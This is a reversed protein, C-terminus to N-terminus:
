NLHYKRKISIGIGITIQLANQEHTGVITISKEISKGYTVLTNERALFSCHM